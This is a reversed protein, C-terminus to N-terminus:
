FITSATDTCNRPWHFVQIWLSCIVAAATAATAVAAATAATAVAATTTTTAVAATTTTTSTLKNKLLACDFIVFNLNWLWMYVHIIGSTVNSTTALSASAWRAPLWLSMSSAVTVHLMMAILCHLVFCNTCKILYVALLANRRRWIVTMADRIVPWDFTQESWCCRFLM